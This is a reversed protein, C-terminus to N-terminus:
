ELDAETEYSDRDFRNIEYIGDTDLGYKTFVSQSKILRKGGTDGQAYLWYIKDDGVARVLSSTTFEDLTAQDVDIVDEWRLHGYNNFVSPSLILRKFKKAGAYKVIYIDIDGYARILAGEIISNKIVADYDDRKICFVVKTYADYIWRYGKKCKCNDNSDLESNYGYRQQCLLNTRKVGNMSDNIKDKAKALLILINVFPEGKECKQSSSTKTSGTDYNYYGDNCVCYDIGNDYYNHNTTIKKYDYVPTSNIPCYDTAIYGELTRKPYVIKGDYYFQKRIIGNFDLNNNECKVMFDYSAMSDTWGDNCYVKGNSQRGMSCDVGGHWSCAGSTADAITPVFLILIFISM